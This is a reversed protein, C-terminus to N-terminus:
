GGKKFIKVESVGNVTQSSQYVLEYERVGKLPIPSIFPHTGVLRQGESLKSIAEDYTAYVDVSTLNKGDFSIVTSQRSVTDAGNFNYLRVVLSEYYEPYFLMVPNVKSGDILYYTESFDSPQNDNWTAIAWFKGNVTNSDIIFYDAEINGGNIFADATNRILNAQQSPNVYAHRKGMREIWYGYDWWALIVSDQPTNDKLWDMSECWADSPTYPPNKASSVAAQANPIVMVALIIAAAAYAFIVSTAKLRCWAYWIFWGTLLSANVAFYYAFRRYELMLVLSAISWIVLLITGSDRYKVARGALIILALPALLVLFGFTYWLIMPNFAGNPFLIPQMEITTIGTNGTISGLILGAHGIAEPNLAFFVVAVIVGSAIIVIPYLEKRRSIINVLITACLHAAIIVVLFLGGLFTRLYLVLVIGTLLTFIVRSRGSAKIAMAFFMMVTTSLLVEMVHHDTFGLISRGLWEGPLIAIVIAAIVGVAKSFMTKGIFYIPVVTLAALIAPFYVGVIDITHQTPSGLGICWTIGALAWVFFPTQFIRTIYAPFDPAIKDVQSMQWYADVGSFKIWEGALISDYPLVIRLYLSAAICLALIGIIYRTKM